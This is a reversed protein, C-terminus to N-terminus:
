LSVDEVEMKRRPVEAFICFRDHLPRFLTYQAEKDLSMCFMTCLSAFCLLAFLLMTDDRWLSFFVYYCLLACFIAFCLSYCLMAFHPAFCRRISFIYIKEGMYTCLDFRCFQLIYYLASGFVFDPYISIAPLSSLLMSLLMSLPLHRSSRYVLFTSCRSGYVCTRLMSPAQSVM